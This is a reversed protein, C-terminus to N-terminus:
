WTLVAKSGMPVFFRSHWLPIVSTSYPKSSVVYRGWRRKSTEIGSGCAPTVGYTGDVMASYLEADPHTTAILAEVDRENFAKLGRRHLDVNERSVPV